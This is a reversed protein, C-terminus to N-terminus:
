NFLSIAHNIDLTYDTIHKWLKSKNDPERRITFIEVNNSELYEILHKIAIKDLDCQDRITKIIFDTEYKKFLFTKIFDLINMLDKKYIGNMDVNWNKKKM